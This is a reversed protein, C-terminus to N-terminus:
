ECSAQGGELTRIQGFIGICVTRPMTKDLSVLLKAASTSGTNKFSVENGPTLTIQVGEPAKEMRGIVNSGSKIEAGNGYDGSVPSFKIVKNRTIAENRAMQLAGVLSNTAAKIRNNLIMQRMNPVAFGLVVALLAVVVMLEVLSFGRSAKEM